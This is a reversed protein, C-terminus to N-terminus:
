LWLFNELHRGNQRGLKIGSPAGLAVSFELFDRIERLSPRRVLQFQVSHVILAM